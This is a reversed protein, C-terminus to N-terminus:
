PLAGDGDRIDAYEVEVPWRMSPPSLYRRCWGPTHGAVSRIGGVISNRTKTLPGAYMLGFRTPPGGDRPCNHFGYQTEGLIAVASEISDGVQIQSAAQRLARCQRIHVAILCLPGLVTVVLLSVCVTRRFRAGISQTVDTM